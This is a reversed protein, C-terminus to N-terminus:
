YISVECPPHMRTWTGMSNFIPFVERSVIRIEQWYNSLTVKSFNSQSSILVLSVLYAPTHVAQAGKLGAALVLRLGILGLHVELPDFKLCRIRSMDM